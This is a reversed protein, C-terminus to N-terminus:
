SFFNFFKEFFGKNELNKKTLFIENHNYGNRIKIGMECIDQKADKLIFKTYKESIIQDVLIQYKKFINKLSEVIEIPLCIFHIEACVNNCKLDSNLDSHVKGDIIYNNIHMHIIQDDLYNKNIQDKAEILLHKLIKENVLNNEYNIKFSTQISFLKKHDTIIFIQNIFKDILKEIHFINEELFKNLEIFNIDNMKDKIIFENRFINKYQLKEFVSIIFKESSIYLYTEIENKDTM